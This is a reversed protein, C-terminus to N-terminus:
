TAGAENLVDEVDGLISEVDEDSEYQEDFQAFLNDIRRQDESRLTKRVTIYRDWLASHTDEIAM